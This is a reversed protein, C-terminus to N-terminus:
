LEASTRGLMGALEVVDIIQCPLAIIGSGTSVTYEVSGNIGHLELNLTGDGRERFSGDECSQYGSAINTSRGTM